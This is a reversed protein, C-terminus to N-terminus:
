ALEFVFSESWEKSRLSTFSKLPLRVEEWVLNKSNGSPRLNMIKLETNKLDGDATFEINPKNIDTELSVNRLHRYFSCRARQVVRSCRAFFRRSLSISQM